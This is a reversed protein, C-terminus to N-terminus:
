IQPQWTPADWCLSGNSGSWQCRAYRRNIIAILRTRAEVLGFGSVHDTIRSPKEERMV